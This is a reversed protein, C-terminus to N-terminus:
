TNKRSNAPLCSCLEGGCVRKSRTHQDATREAAREVFLRLRHIHELNTVLENLPERQLAVDLARRVCQAVDRGRDSQLYCCLLTAQDCSHARTGM